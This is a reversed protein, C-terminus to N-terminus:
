LQSMKKFNIDQFVLHLRATSCFMLYIRKDETYM